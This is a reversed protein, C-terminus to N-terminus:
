RVSSQQQEWAGVDLVQEIPCFVLGVLWIVQWALSGRRFDQPM